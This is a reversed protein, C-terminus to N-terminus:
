KLIRWVFGGTTINFFYFENKLWKEAIFVVKKVIENKNNKIGAKEWNIISISPPAAKEPYLLIRMGPSPPV